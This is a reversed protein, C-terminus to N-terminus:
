IFFDVGLSGYHFIWRFHNFPLLNVDNKFFLMCHHYLIVGICFFLKLFDVQICRNNNEMIM